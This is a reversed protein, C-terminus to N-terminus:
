RRRPARGAAPMSSRRAGVADVVTAGPIIMELGERLQTAQADYARRAATVQGRRICRAVTAWHSAIEAQTAVILSTNKPGQRLAWNAALELEGSVIQRLATVLVADTANGAAKVADEGLDVLKLHFAAYDGVFQKLELAHAEILEGGLESADLALREIAAGLIRDRSEWVDLVRVDGIQLYIGMAKATEGISPHRVRPGGGIGRRVEVLGENELIRMAERVTVKSVAMDEALEDEVPLPAGPALEGRAIRERFVAAIAFPVKVVGEPELAAV